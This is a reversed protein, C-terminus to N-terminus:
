KVRPALERTRELRRKIYAACAALGDSYTLRHTEGEKTTWHRVVYEGPQMGEFIWDKVARQDSSFQRWDEPGPCCDFEWGDCRQDGSFQLWDQVRHPSRKLAEHIAAETVLGHHELYGSQRVLELM